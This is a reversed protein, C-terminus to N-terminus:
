VLMGLRAEVGVEMSGVGVGISWSDINASGIGGVVKTTM